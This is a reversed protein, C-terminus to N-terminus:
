GGLVEKLRDLFGPEQTKIDSGLTKALEELLTRQEPTLHTPIEINVLVQQDGRGSSRLHPVGKGRLSFVKNPQTGAPINLHSPGDITPIEIDSGLAAQAINISIDLLIDDKRRQFVKHKEVLVELYLNGNPGGNEGPQGEGSLRINTGTDVGAPVSVTKKVTKREQGRGKCTHCPSSIVEGKGNCNPCTTVTVMSGLITQRAARVEGRGGCTTCRIPSSGPEAGSGRCTSCLEDRVFEISKEV